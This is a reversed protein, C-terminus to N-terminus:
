VAVYVAGVSDTQKESSMTPETSSHTRESSGVSPAPDVLRRVIEREGVDRSDVDVRLLEAPLGAAVHLHEALVVRVLAPGLQERREDLVAGDGVAETVVPRAASRRHLALRRFAHM